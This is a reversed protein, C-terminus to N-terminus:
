GKIRQALKIDKKMLTVRNAHITCLIGDEMSGILYSECAEQLGMLASETFRISPNMSQAIERVVKRFPQKPILLETSRQYKKIEKTTRDRPKARQIRKPEDYYSPQSHFEKSGMIEKKIRAAVASPKKDAYVRKM